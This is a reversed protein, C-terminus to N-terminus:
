LYTNTLLLFLPILLTFLSIMWPYLVRKSCVMLLLCAFTIVVPAMVATGRSLYETQYTIFGLVADEAARNFQPLIVEVTEPLKVQNRLALVIAVTLTPIALIVGRLRYIYQVLTKANVHLKKYLRETKEWGPRPKDVFQNWKDLQREMWEM